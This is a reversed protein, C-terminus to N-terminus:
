IQENLLLKKKEDEEAFYELYIKLIMTIAEESFSQDRLTKTPDYVFHYRYDRHWNIYDVVEKPIKYYEDFPLLNIFSYVESYSKKNYNM